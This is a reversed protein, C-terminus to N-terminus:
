VVAVHAEALQTSSAAKRRGDLAFSHVFGKQALNSKATEYIGRAHQYSLREDAHISNVRFTFRQLDDSWQGHEEMFAFFKGDSAARTTLVLIYCESRGKEPTQTKYITEIMFRNYISAQPKLPSEVCLCTKASNKARYEGKTGRGFITVPTIQNSVEM